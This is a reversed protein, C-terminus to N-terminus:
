HNSVYNKTNWKFAKIAEKPAMTVFCYPCLFYIVYISFTRGNYLYVLGRGYNTICKKIIISTLRIRTCSHGGWLSISLSFSLQSQVMGFRIKYMNFLLLLPFSYLIRSADSSFWTYNKSLCIVICLIKTTMLIYTRL